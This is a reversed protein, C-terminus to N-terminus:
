VILKLTQARTELARALVGRLSRSPSITRINVHSNRWLAIRPCRYSVAYYYHVRPPRVAKRHGRRRFRTAHRREDDDSALNRTSFINGLGGDM